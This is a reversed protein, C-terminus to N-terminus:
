KSEVPAVLKLFRVLYDRWLRWEHGGETEVYTFEVEQERLGSLFTQNRDYLFDDKGIPIWLHALQENVTPKPGKLSVYRELDIKPTAASMAGVAFFQDSNKLGTDLAHGGGMSLGVIARSQPTAGARYSREVFPLVDNMLDKEYAENNGDFYDEPRKGEPVPVPHGWPMAIVVPGVQGSAILNDAILHARGVETWATEDDGFGHLLLVLPYRAHGDHQYGPPTYVMLPRAKGTTSSPYWHRHIVGHPVDQLETVLPPDGPIEVLNACTRWKKFWRNRADLTRTGDVYFAYDYIGPAMPETQFRWVSESQEMAHRQGDISVQVQKADAAQIRLLVTRDSDVIPSYFDQALCEANTAVLLALTVIIKIDRNVSPRVEM